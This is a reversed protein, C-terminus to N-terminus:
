AVRLIENYCSLLTRLGFFIQSEGEPLQRGCNIIINQSSCLGVLFTFILCFQMEKAKVM